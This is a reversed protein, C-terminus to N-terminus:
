TRKVGVLWQLYYAVGRGTEHQTPAPVPSSGLRAMRGTGTDGSSQQEGPPNGGPDDGLDLPASNGVEAYGHHPSWHKGNHLQNTVVLLGTGVL